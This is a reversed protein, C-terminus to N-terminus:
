RDHESNHKPATMIASEKAQLWLLNLLPQEVRIGYKSLVQLNQSRSGTMVVAIRRTMTTDPKHVVPAKGV